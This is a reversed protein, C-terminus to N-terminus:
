SLFGLYFLWLVGAWLATTVAVIMVQSRLSQHRAEEAILAGIIGGVFMLVVIIIGTM